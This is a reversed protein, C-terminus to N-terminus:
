CRVLTLESGGTELEVALAFGIMEGVRKGHVPLIIVHSADSKDM